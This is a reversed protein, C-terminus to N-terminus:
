SASVARQFQALARQSRSKLPSDAHRWQFLLWSIERQQGAIWASIAIRASQWRQVVSVPRQFRSRLTGCRLKLARNARRLEFNRIIKVDAHSAHHCRSIDRITFKSSHGALRASSDRQPVSLDHNWHATLMDGNFYCGHYKVSDDHHYERQYWELPLCIGRLIIYIPIIM